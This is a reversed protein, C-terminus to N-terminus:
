QTVGLISDHQWTSDVTGDTPKDRRGLLLIAKEVNV